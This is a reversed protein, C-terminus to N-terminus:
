QSLEKMCCFGNGSSLTFISIKRKETSSFLSYDDLDETSKIKEERNREELYTKM